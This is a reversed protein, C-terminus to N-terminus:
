DRVERARWVQTREGAPDPNVSGSPGGRGTKVASRHWRGLGSEKGGSGSLDACKTGCADAVGPTWPLNVRPVGSRQLSIIDCRRSGKCLRHFMSNTLPFIFILLFPLYKLARKPTTCSPPIFVVTLWMLANWAVKKLESRIVTPNRPLDQPMKPLRWRESIHSARYEVRLKFTWM